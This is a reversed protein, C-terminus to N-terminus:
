WMDGTCTNAMRIYQGYTFGCHCAGPYYSMINGVHPMYQQGNADPQTFIFRCGLNEDVYLELPAGEQYPDAPTDCVLDGQTDCNSGDVLEVGNGEFTHFLGFYHGMEHPITTNGPGFCEPEKKIVIGNSELNNIGGIAAFGCANPRYPMDQVFFMNIRNKEHYQVQLESWENENDLIDYRFNDIERIDCVEFSVCIPEFFINLSDISNVLQDPDVNTNGLSDKVIHLIITYKKNLCPLPAQKTQLAQGMLLTTTIFLSLATAVITKM